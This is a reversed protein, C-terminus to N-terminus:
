AVTVLYVQAIVSPKFRHHLMKQRSEIIGLVLIVLLFAISSNVLANSTLDLVLADFNYVGVIISYGWERNLTRGVFFVLGISDMYMDIYQPSGYADHLEDNFALTRNELQSGESDLKFLLRGQHYGNIWLLVYISGDPGDIGASIDVYDWWDNAYEVGIIISWQLNGEIDHNTLNAAGYPAPHTTLVDGNELTYADNFTGRISWEEIGNNNWLILLDDTRTYIDGNDCVEVDEVRDWQNAGFHVDWLIAGSSDMKILVNRTPSLATSIGVFIDGESNVGVDGPYDSSSYDLITEWILNGNIDLAYLGVNTSLGPGYATGIVYIAYPTAAVSQLLMGESSNWTKSWLIESRLGVRTLTSKEGIGGYEEVNLVYLSDDSAMFSDRFADSSGVRWSNSFVPSEVEVSTNTARYLANLGLNTVDLIVSGNYTRWPQIFGNDRFRWTPVLGIALKAVPRISQNQSSSLDDFVGEFFSRTLTFSNSRYIDYGGSFTTIQQWFGDPHIIWALVKFLGASNQSLFWGTKTIQYRLSLNLSSPLTDRNWSFNQYFYAFEECEPLYTDTDYVLETGPQHTWNITVVGSNHSEAENAYQVTFEGSPGEIGHEPQVDLSPYAMLEQSDYIISTRLSTNALTPQAYVVYLSTILLVLVLFLSAPM